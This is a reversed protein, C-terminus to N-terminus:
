ATGGFDNGGETRSGTIRGQQLGHDACAHIDHAQVEAVALRLVMDVAGTQHALGRLAGAALHGDHGVQLAGLDAHALEGFALDHQLGAHREHQVGGAGFGAVDMAHPEIVLLQRTVDLGAVQQQEVVAQDHQGHLRHAALLDVRRDLEAALQGVVLADVLLAAPQSRRRQGALVHVVDLGGHTELGVIHGHAKRFIGGVHFHRALQAVHRGGFVPVLRPQNGLDLPGLGNRVQFVDELGAVADHDRAAIQRDFHAVGGHRRQM